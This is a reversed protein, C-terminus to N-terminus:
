FPPTRLGTKMWPDLSDLMQQIAEDYKPGFKARIDDIDMQIAEGMRGKKILDAQKAIHQMHGPMKGNSATRAHDAPDMKIAPGDPRTVGKGAAQNEADAPTHHSEM